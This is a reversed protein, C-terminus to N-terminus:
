GGTIRRAIELARAVEDASANEYRVGNYETYTETRIPAQTEASETDTLVAGTIPRGLISGIVADLGAIKAKNAAIREQRVREEVNALTQALDPITTIFEDLAAKWITVDRVINGFLDVPDTASRIDDLKAAISIKIGNVRLTSPSTSYDITTDPIIRVISSRQLTPVVRELVARYSSVQTLARYKDRSEQRNDTILWILETQRPNLLVDLGGYTLKVECSPFLHEVIAKLYKRIQGSIDQQVGWQANRVTVGMAKAQGDILLLNVISLLTKADEQNTIM